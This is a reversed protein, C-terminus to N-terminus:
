GFSDRHPFGLTELPLHLMADSDWKAVRKANLIHLDLENREPLHALPLHDIM